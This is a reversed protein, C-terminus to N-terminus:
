YKFLYFIHPQSSVMALDRKLSMFLDQQRIKRVVDIDKPLLLPQELAEAIYASHGRQFERVSANWPITAGDVELRPSWTHYQLRADAGIQEERSDVSTARKDRPDKAMKQQKTGKQPAVEGEELEQVPRKKKLNPIAHLRLDTPPLPPPPPFTSSSPVQPNRKFNVGQEKLGKLERLGKNGWNLAMEDEEEESTSDPHAIM